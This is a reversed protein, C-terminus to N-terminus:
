FSNSLNTDSGRSDAQDTQDANLFPEAWSLCSLFAKFASIAPAASGQNTQGANEANEANFSGVLNATSVNPAISEAYRLSGGLDDGVFSTPVAVGGVDVGSRSARAPAGAYPPSGKFVM